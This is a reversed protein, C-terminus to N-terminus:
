EAAEREGLAQRAGARMADIPPAQGTWLRFAHGAQHVLMGLGGIPRAGASAAAKLLPTVAPHYVIDVVLQGDALLSPDLPLRSDAGMGLPTTNVVLDATRIDDSTGVTGTAGALRAAVAAADPSRNVVVVAAAGHDGLARAVSRGAGGAGVVVCRLGTVDVDEEIRLADVLGDGDTNHGVVQVGQRAVCNVAGLAEAVPSLRDLGPIVAAKDPMTVSLGEIRGERVEDMFAAAAGEGVDHAEYVWDLGTAAFAATFIAPSMSHGIPSGIVGARKAM